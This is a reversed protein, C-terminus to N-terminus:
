KKPKVRGTGAVDARKAIEEYSEAIMLMAQKVDEDRMHEAMARAEEARLLWHEPTRLRSPM